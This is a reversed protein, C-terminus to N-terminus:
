LEMTFYNNHCPSGLTSLKLERNHVQDTCTGVDELGKVKEMWRGVVVCPDYFYYCNFLTPIMTCGQHLHGNTVKINTVKIEDLLQLSGSNAMLDIYPVRLARCLKPLPM